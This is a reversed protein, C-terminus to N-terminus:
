QLLLVVRTSLITGELKKALTQGALFLRLSRAESHVHVPEAEASDVDVSM